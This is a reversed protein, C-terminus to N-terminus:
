DRRDSTSGNRRVKRNRPESTKYISLKITNYQMPMNCRSAHMAVVMGNRVDTEASLMDNRYMKFILIM